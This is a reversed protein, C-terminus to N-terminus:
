MLQDLRGPRMLAADIIQGPDAKGEKLLAFADELGLKMGSWRAILADTREASEFVTQGQWALQYTVDPASDDMDWTEGELGLPAMEITQAFVYYLAGMTVRKPAADRRAQEAELRSREEATDIAWYGGGIVGATVIAFAAIQAILKTRPSESM